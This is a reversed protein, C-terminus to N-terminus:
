ISVQPNAHGSPQMERVAKLVAELGLRFAIESYLGKKLRVGLYHVEAAAIFPLLAEISITEGTEEGYGEFYSAEARRM